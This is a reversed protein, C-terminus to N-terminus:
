NQDETEGIIEYFRTLAEDFTLHFSDLEFKFERYVRFYLCFMYDMVEERYEIRISFSGKSWITYGDKYGHEGRWKVFELDKEFGEFRNNHM